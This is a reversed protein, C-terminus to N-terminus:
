QYLRRCKLMPSCSQMGEPLQRIRASPVCNTSSLFSVIKPRKITLTALVQFLTNTKFHFNFISSSYCMCADRWILGARFICWPAWGCASQVDEQSALRLTARASRVVDNGTPSSCGPARHILEVATWYLMHMAVLPGSAVDDTSMTDDSGERIRLSPPLSRKWQDLSASLQTQSSQPQAPSRTAYLSSLLNSIICALSATAAFIEESLSKASAISPLIMDYDHVSISPARGAMASTAADLVLCATWLVQREHQKVADDPAARERHFGLDVAMRTAQGSLAWARAPSGSVAHFSLLLLVKLSSVSSVHSLQAYAKTAFKDSMSSESGFVTVCALAAYLLEQPMDEVVASPQTAAALFTDQDFIPMMHHPHAFYAKAMTRLEDAGPMIVDLDAEPLTSTFLDVISSQDIAPLGSSHGYYQTSQSGSCSAWSGDTCAMASSCTPRSSSAPHSTSQQLAEM